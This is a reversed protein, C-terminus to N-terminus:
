VRALHETEQLTKINEAGICFMTIRLERVLQEITASVAEASIEAAKLFPLAM